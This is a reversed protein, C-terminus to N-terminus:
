QALPVQSREAILITSDWLPLESFMASTGTQRWNAKDIEYVKGTIMEVYVPDNFTANQITINTPDWALVDSPIQDNYWILVSAAEDKKFGAVTINRASNSKFPLEGIPKVSNDFFSVMHQVAYYAPKRYIVERKLNSRLLGMSLLVEDYRMDIIGFVSTKIDRVRDGAMRRMYWKAQSFETWPYNNLAHYVHNESPAANEGQYLKVKPNYSLALEKLKDALPNGKDPNYQYPHYTVYDVLDAKNQAKLQDYVARTFDLSVSGNLSFGYIISNPQVKKIVEITRLLLDAYAKESGPRNNPENWIEWETVVDKYRTVVAEVWKCWAVMTEESTFIQSSLRFDSGYLPNGYSLCIWPKVRQEALGYVCTDLWAFNYTGKVRECRAWGGQLRAGKVGLEGVYDKYNSFKTYERDVTECGVSWPSADVQKSSKVAMTGIQKLGPGTAQFIDWSKSKFQAMALYTISLFLPLFILAKKM